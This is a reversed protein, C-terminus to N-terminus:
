GVGSPIVDIAWITVLQINFPGISASFTAFPGDVEGVLGFRVSREQRVVLRVAREGGFGVSAFPGNM